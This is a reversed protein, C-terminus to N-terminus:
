KLRESSGNPLLRSSTLRLSMWAKWKWLEQVNVEQKSLNLGRGCKVIAMNSIDVTDGSKGLIM